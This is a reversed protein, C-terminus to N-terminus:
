AALVLSSIGPIRWYGFVWKSVNAIVVWFLFFLVFNGVGVRMYEAESGYKKIVVKALFLLVAVALLVPVPQAWPASHADPAIVKNPTEFDIDAAVLNANSRQETTVGEGQQFDGASPLSLRQLRITSAM